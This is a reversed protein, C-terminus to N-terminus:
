GDRHGAGDMFATLELHAQATPAKLCSVLLPMHAPRLGGRQKGLGGSGTRTLCPTLYGM